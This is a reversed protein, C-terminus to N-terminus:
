MSATRTSSSARMRSTAPRSRTGSRAPRCGSPSRPTRPAAGSAAPPPLVLNYAESRNGRGIIYVDRTGGTVILGVNAGREILTNIAITSGHILNAIVAPDLDVKEICDIVGDVPDRRPPSKSQYVTLRKM